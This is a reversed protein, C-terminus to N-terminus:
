LGSGDAFDADGGFRSDIQALEFFDKARRIVVELQQGILTRNSGAGELGCSNAAAQCEFKGDGNGERGDLFQFDPVFFGDAFVLLDIADIAGGALHVAFFEM